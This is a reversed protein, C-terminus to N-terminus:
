GRVVLGVPDQGAAAGGGDGALVAGGDADGAGHGLSLRRLGGPRLRQVSAVRIGFAGAALGASRLALMLVPRGAVAQGAQQHRHAPLEDVAVFRRPVKYGPWTSARGLGRPRARDLDAGDALRVSPSRCRARPTTPCARGGGGRAGVPPARAGGRGRPRLGLLRRAQDRGEASRPLRGHRVPGRAGPRRHAALRRRHRRARSAEPADWYGRIVGPGAGVARGVGGPRVEDGDHTSWRSATAPCSCAWGTASGSTRGAAAVGQGGRRRRGRGHRLGRRLHGRGGTRDAPLTATAGMKKFQRALDAPMADAGSGWVRVSTLDRDSPAPRSCCGTCPRARRHLHHGAAARHRRAGRGPRFKPLVYVPVGLAPWAWWCPSAWSTPSRCASSPRTATCRRADVARRGHGTRGPGPPDARGGQAPRHHGVHLLPRGRRRASPPVPRPWRSPGTSRTCAACWWRPAPTPWWTACRRPGCRRTSRCRSAGPGRRPWASCSCSTTTPPTSAGGPRRAGGQGRHRRGLPEGAQRGPPLHAPARGPRQGAAPQRPGRGARGHAHGAHHRPGAGAPGASLPRM